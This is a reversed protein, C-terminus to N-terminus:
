LGQDFQASSSSGGGIAGGAISLNPNLGISAQQQLKIM